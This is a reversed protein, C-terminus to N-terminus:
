RESNEWHILTPALQIHYPQGRHGHIYYAPATNEDMITRLKEHIRCIKENISNSLPDCIRALHEAAIKERFKDAMIHRYIDLLETFHNGIQKLLIGEPHRLFLIFISKPLPGLPLEINDFEPLFIHYDATIYIRSITRQPRVLDIIADEHVGLTRLEAILQRVTNMKHEVAEPYFTHQQAAHRRRERDIVNHFEDRQRNDVMNGYFTDFMHWRHRIHREIVDDHEHRAEDETQVILGQNHAQILTDLDPTNHPEKM